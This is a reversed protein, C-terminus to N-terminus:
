HPPTCCFSGHLVHRAHFFSFFLCNLSLFVVLPLCITVSSELFLPSLFCFSLSSTWTRTKCRLDFLLPPIFILSCLVTYINSVFCAIVCQISCSTDHPTAELRMVLCWSLVLSEFFLLEYCVNVQFEPIQQVHRKRLEYDSAKMAVAYVVRCREVHAMGEPTTVSTCEISSSANKAAAGLICSKQVVESLNLVIFLFLFFRYYLCIASALFISELWAKNWLQPLPMRVLHYSSPRMETQGINKFMRRTSSQFTSFSNHQCTAETKMHNSRAKKWPIVQEKTKVMNEMVLCFHCYLVKFNFFFMENYARTSSCFNIQSEPIQQTHRRRLECGSVKM